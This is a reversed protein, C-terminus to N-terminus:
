RRDGSRGAGAQAATIATALEELKKREGALAPRGALAAQCALAAEDHRRQRFRCEALLWANRYFGPNDKEASSACAASQDLQGRKLARWGDQLKTQAALFRRYEGSALMADEPISRDALPKEWDNVDFAVFRGLQHPPAAAWFVGATLDMVVAHTAILPNLSSRHGNGAFQGGPLRRDRL